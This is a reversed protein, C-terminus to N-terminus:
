KLIYLGFDLYTQVLSMQSGTYHDLYACKNTKTKNLLCLFKHTIQIGISPKEINANFTASIIM